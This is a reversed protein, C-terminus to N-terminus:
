ENSNGELALMEREYELYVPQVLGYKQRMMLKDTETPNEGLEENMQTKVEEILLEVKRHYAEDKYTIENWPTAM